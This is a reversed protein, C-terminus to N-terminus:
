REEATPQPFLAPVAGRARLALRIELVEDLTMRERTAVMAAPLGHLALVRRERPTLQAQM